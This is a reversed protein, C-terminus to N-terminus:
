RVSASKRHTLGREDLFPNFRAVLSERPLPNRKQFEQIEPGFCDRQVERIWYTGAEILESAELEGSPSRRRKAHRVFRLVWTTARLLKWYSSFRSFEILRRSDETTAVLLSHTKEVPLLQHTRAQQRPWQNPDQSLWAPGHWWKRLELQEANVGRSL